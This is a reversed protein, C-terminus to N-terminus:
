FDKWLDAVSNGSRSHGRCLDEANPGWLQLRPTEVLESGEGLLLEQVVGAAGRRRKVVLVRQQPGVGVVESWARGAVVSLAGLLLERTLKQTTM